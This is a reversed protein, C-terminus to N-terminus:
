TGTQSHSGDGTEDILVDIVIQNEEEDTTLNADEEMLQLSMIEDDSDM